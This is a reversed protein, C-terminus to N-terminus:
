THELPNWVHPAIRTGWRVNWMAVSRSRTVNVPAIRISSGGRNTPKAILGTERKGRYLSRRVHTQIEIIV